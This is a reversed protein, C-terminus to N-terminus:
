FCWLHYLFINGQLGGIKKRKEEEGEKRREKREKRRERRKEERGKKEKEGKEKEERREKERESATTLLHPSFDGKIATWPQRIQSM